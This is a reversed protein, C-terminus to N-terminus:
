ARGANADGEDGPRVGNEPHLLDLYHCALEYHAAVVSEDTAKQALELEREAKDELCARDIKSGTRM